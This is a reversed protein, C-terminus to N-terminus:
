LNSVQHHLGLNSGPRTYRQSQDENQTTTHSPRQGLFREGEGTKPFSLQRNALMIDLM